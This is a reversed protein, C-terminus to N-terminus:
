LPDIDVGGFLHPERGSRLMKAIEQPGHDGISVFLGDFESAVEHPRLIVPCPAGTLVIVRGAVLGTLRQLDLHTTGGNAGARKTALHAIIFESGHVVDDNATRVGHNLLKCLDDFVEVGAIQVNIAIFPRHGVLVDHTGNLQKPPFDDWRQVLDRELGIGRLRYIRYYADRGSDRHSLAPICGRYASHTTCGRPSFVLHSARLVM